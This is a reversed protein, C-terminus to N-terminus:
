NTSESAIHLHTAKGYRNSTINLLIKSLTKISPLIICLVHNRLRNKIPNIPPIKRPIPNFLGLM